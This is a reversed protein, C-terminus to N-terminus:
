GARRGEATGIKENEIERDTMPEGDPHM